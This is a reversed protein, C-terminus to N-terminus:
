IATGDDNVKTGGSFVNIDSLAYDEIESIMNLIATILSSPATTVDFVFRKQEVMTKGDNFTTSSVYKNWVIAFRNNINDIQTDFIHHTTQVGSETEITKNIAM